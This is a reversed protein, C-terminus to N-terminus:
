DEEQQRSGSVDRFTVVIGLVENEVSVPHASIEVAFASGDKRFMTDLQNDFPVNQRLAETIPCNEEPFCQGDPYHHHVLNHINGGMMEGSAFGVIKEAMNNVFTCNGRPDLGWIGEGASDLVAQWQRKQWLEESTRMRAQETLM